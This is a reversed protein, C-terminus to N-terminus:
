GFEILNDQTIVENGKGGSLILHSKQPYVLSARVDRGEAAGETSHAPHLESHPPVAKCAILNGELIVKECQSFYLWCCIGM